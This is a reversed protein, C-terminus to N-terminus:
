LPIYKLKWVDRADVKQEKRRVPPPSTDEIRMFTAQNRPAQGVARTIQRNLV